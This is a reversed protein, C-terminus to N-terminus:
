CLSPQFENLDVECSVEDRQALRRSCRKVQELSTVFGDITNSLRHTETELLDYTVSFQTTLLDIRRNLQSLASKVDILPPAEQFDFKENEIM